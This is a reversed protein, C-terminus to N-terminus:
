GGGPATRPPEPRGRVPINDIAIPNFLRLVGTAFEAEEPSAVEVLVATEGNHIQPAFSRSVDGWILPDVELMELEAQVNPPPPGAERLIRYALRDAAVGETRLRHYADLAIGSSQFLGVVFREAM